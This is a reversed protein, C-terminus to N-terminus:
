TTEVLGRRVAEVSAEARTRAGLKRLIAAVHHDITRESVVLESAIEANHLGQAVLQLVEMERVTLGAPNSRTSARPGRVIGRQGRARLRRAILTAAPHAGLEQLDAVASQLHDSDDSNALALAAEYRCGIARWCEAAETFAGALALVYPNDPPLGRVSDDLGALRRLYALESAEWLAERELALSLPAETIRGVESGDGRLWAAEARATAVPGIRFIEGTAHTLEHAEDLPGSADPDGRRARLRGLTALAWAYAVPAAHSGELVLLISEGAEHWQGIQLELSARCALLYQRWTELGHETCYALGLELQHACATLRRTRVPGHVLQFYMRGAHEDFGHRRALEHAEALKPGGEPRGAHDEAAGVTTLAYVLAETDDLERALEIARSGWSVAANVEDAAMRRQAVAGYAM